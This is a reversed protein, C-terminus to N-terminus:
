QVSRRRFENVSGGSTTSKEEQHEVRANPGAGGEFTARFACGTLGGLTFVVICLSLFAWFSGLFISEKIGRVVTVTKTKATNSRKTRMTKEMHFFVIRGLNTLPIYGYAGLDVGGNRRRSVIPIDVHDSRLDLHYCFGWDRKRGQENERRELFFM